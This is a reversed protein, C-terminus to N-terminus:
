GEKSAPFGRLCIQRLAARLQCSSSCLGNTWAVDRGRYQQPPVRKLAHVGPRQHKLIEIIASTTNHENFKHHSRMPTSIGYHKMLVASTRTDEALILSVENLVKIARATMDDLNGVPTPVMYLKGAM